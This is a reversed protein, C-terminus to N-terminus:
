SIADFHPQGDDGVYFEFQLGSPSTMIQVDGAVGVKRVFTANASDTSIATAGAPPDTLTGSVVAPKLRLPTQYRQFLGADSTQFELTTNQSGGAVFTAIAATTLPLDFTYLDNVAAGPTVSTLTAGGPTGLAVVLGLGSAPVVDVSSSGASGNKVLKLLIHKTDGSYWELTGVATAVSLSTIFSQTTVNFVLNTELAM